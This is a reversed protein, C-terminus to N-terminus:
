LAFGFSWSLNFWGMRVGRRHVDPEGGVWAHLAPWILALSGMALTAFLGCVYPNRSMPFLCSFVGFAAAGVFAFTMGNKARSVVWASGFSALAYFAAQSAGIAGSMAAGGGIQRYVYFPMVTISIMVAFDVLFAGLCIRLFPTFKM